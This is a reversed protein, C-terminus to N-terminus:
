RIVGLLWGSVPTRDLPGHNAYASVAQGSGAHVQVWALAHGAIWPPVEHDLSAHMSISQDPMLAATMTLAPSSQGALALADIAAQRLFAPLANAYDPHGWTPSHPLPRPM